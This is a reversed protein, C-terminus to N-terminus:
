PGWSPRPGDPEGPEVGQVVRPHDDWAAKATKAGDLFHKELGLMTVAADLPNDIRNFLQLGEDWKRVTFTGSRGDYFVCHSGEPCRPIRVGDQAHDPEVPKGPPLSRFFARAHEVQESPMPTQGLRECITEIDLAQVQHFAKIYDTDKEALRGAKSVVIDTPCPAVVTITKDGDRVEKYTARHQWGRPLPATTDDVGDVYFGHRLHFPSGNGLLGSTQESAEPAADGDREFQREQWARFNAPYADIEPSDRMTMPADPWGVLISQSGVVVVTDSAFLASVAKATAELDRTTRVQHRNGNLSGVVSQGRM